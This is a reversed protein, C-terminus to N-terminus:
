LNLALFLASLLYNAGFITVASYVVANITAQGVGKAGGKTQF